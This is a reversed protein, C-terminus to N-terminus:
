VAANAFSEGHGGDLRTTVVDKACEMGIQEELKTFGPSIEKPKREKSESLRGIGKQRWPKPPKVGRAAIETWIVEGRKEWRRRRDEDEEESPRWKSKLIRRINEPSVKFHEALVPTTFTDPRQRHLARIGELADPSLRKRPKWGQDAFKKELAQKQIGWPEMRPGTGETESVSLRRVNTRRPLEHEKKWTTAVRGGQLMIGEKGGASSLSRANESYEKKKSKSDSKEKEEPRTRDGKFRRSPMKRTAIRRERRVLRAPTSASKKQSALADESGAAISSVHEQLDKSQQGALGIGSFGDNDHRAKKQQGSPLTGNRGDSPPSRAGNSDTQFTRLQISRCSPKKVLNRFGQSPITSPLCSRSSIVVDFHGLFTKLTHRACSTCSM